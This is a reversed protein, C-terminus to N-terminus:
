ESGGSRGTTGPKLNPKKSRRTHVFPRSEAHQVPEHSTRRQTETAKIGRRSRIRSTQQFKLPKRFFFYVSPHTSLHHPGGTLAPLSVPSPMVCQPGFDPLTCDFQADHGLPISMDMVDDLSTNIDCLADVTSCTLAKLSGIKGQIPQTRSTCEEYPREEYPATALHFSPDVMIENHM